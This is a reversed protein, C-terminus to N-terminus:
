HLRAVYGHSVNCWSRIFYWHLSHSDWILVRLQIGICQIELPIFVFKHAKISGNGTGIHDKLPKSPLHHLFIYKDYFKTPMTSIDAGNDIRMNLTHSKDFTARVIGPFKYKKIFHVKIICQTNKDEM